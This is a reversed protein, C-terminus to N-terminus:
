GFRKKVKKFTYIGCGYKLKKNFKSLNIDLFLVRIDNLNEGEKPLFNVDGSFYTHPTQNQSLINILPLAQNFQDDIIAIRGNLPINM